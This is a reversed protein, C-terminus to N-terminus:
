GHGTQVGSHGAGLTSEIGVASNRWLNNFEHFQRLYRVVVNILICFNPFLFNEFHNRKNVKFNNDSIREGLFNLTKKVTDRCGFGGAPEVTSPESIM